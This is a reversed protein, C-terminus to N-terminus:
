PRKILVKKEAVVVLYKRSFNHGWSSIVTKKDYVVTSVIRWKLDILGEIFYSASHSNLFFTFTKQKISLKRVKLTKKKEEKVVIDHTRIRRRLGLKPAESDVRRIVYDEVREGMKKLFDLAQYKNRAMFEPYVPEGHFTVGYVAYVIFGQPLLGQLKKGTETWIDKEYFHIQDPNNIDKIVRRSGYVYDFEKTQIKLGLKLLFKELINLKRDVVTNAVRISTGHLKQTVIIEQNAPITEHCKFYNDTDYHEPLFKKEVRSKRVAQQQNHQARKPLEFKKCIEIGKLQDFDDGEQLDAIKIKTFDLSELPMFLAESRHGRFKVSRVRRNDELYGKEAHVKNKDNHRYLNNNYCYDESLQTEAPFVIGIQGIQTAKSVIAQFGFITTAVVNDCNPLPVLNKIKVVTACYNNNIPKELKM